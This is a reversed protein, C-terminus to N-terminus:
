TSKDTSLYKSVGIGIQRLNPEIKKGLFDEVVNAIGSALFSPVGKIQNADIALEGRSEVITHQGDAIFRNKGQCSVAETFAHTEIRWELLFETGDWRDYETWSLMTENLIARAAVPIEGGGQWECVTYISEGEQRHSKIAANRVDPMYPLLDVLNDRYTAYVLDRPFPIQLDVSLRMPIKRLTSSLLARRCYELFKASFQALDKPLLEAPM